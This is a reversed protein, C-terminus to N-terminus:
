NSLHKKLFAFTRGWADKAYEPNYYSVFNPNDFGNRSNPYEHLEYPKGLKRLETEVPSEETRSDGKVTPLILVPAQLKSVHDM